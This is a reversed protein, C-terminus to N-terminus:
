ARASRRPRRPAPSTRTRVEETGDITVPEVRGWWSGPPSMLAEIEDPEKPVDTLVRNGNRTVLVDDEIRVGIGRVSKPAADGFYLGPEVTIVMGPRLKISEGDVFYPGVDHVDSGLWHGIRHMFYPRYSGSEVITKVTGKLVGLAVLGRCLVKLGAEHVERYTAGPRIAAIAAKQAQLVWRYVSLGPETFRGSAPFTRTVDATVYSVEAGADMLVLDRDRIPQDNRIYHLTTASKGAAAITEFGVRDGGRRRFEFELVAALERENMGPRVARM